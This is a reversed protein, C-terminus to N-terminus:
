DEVVTVPRFDGVRLWDTSGDSDVYFEAEAVLAPGPAGSHLYVWGTKVETTM